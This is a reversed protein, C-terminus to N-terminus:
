GETQLREAEEVSTPGLPQVNQNPLPEDFLLTNIGLGATWEVYAGTTADKGYYTNCQGGSYWVGDVGPAPLLLETDGSGSRIDYNRTISACYSVPLGELVYYGLFEGNAGQLYVFSLKGPEDWTDIWFNITERSPSYEMSKAPQGEILSQVTKTRRDADAKQGEPEQSSCGLAVLAVVAVVAALIWRRMRRSRM